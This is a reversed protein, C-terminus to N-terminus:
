NGGCLRGVVTDSAKQLDLFLWCVENRRTRLFKDIIKRLIFINETTRGGKMFRM